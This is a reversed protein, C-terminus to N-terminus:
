KPLDRQQVDADLRLRYGGRGSKKWAWAMDGADEARADLVILKKEPVDITFTSEQTSTFTADDKGQVAVRITVTHKGPAVFGEFRVADNPEAAIKGSTDDFVRAGDLLIAAHTVAQLRPSAWRLKVSLKATYVASGVAAARARATFLKERLTEYEKRLEDLSAPTPAPAPDQAAAVSSVLLLCIAFGIRM